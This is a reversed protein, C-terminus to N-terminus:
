FFMGRIIATTFAIFVLLSTLYIYTLNSNSGSTKALKKNSGYAPHDFTNKQGTLEAFAKNVIDPTISSKGNKETIFLVRECLTNIAGPVGQAYKAIHNIVSESFFNQKKCGAMELQRYIFLASEIKNLKRLRIYTIRGSWSTINEPNNNKANDDTAAFLAELKSTGALILNIKKEIRTLNVIQKITGADSKDADDVILTLNRNLKRVHEIIANLRHPRELGTLNLKLRDCVFILFDDFDLRTNCLICNSSITPDKAFCNLLVTKGTGSEGILLTISKNLRTRDLLNDYIKEFYPHAKFFDVGVGQFPRRRFNFYATSFTASDSKSLYRTQEAQAGPENGTKPSESAKAPLRTAAALRTTKPDTAEGQAVAKAALRTEALRETKVNVQAALQNQLRTDQLRETKLDPDDEQVAPQGQLLTEDLQAQTVRAVTQRTVAHLATEDDTTGAQVISSENQVSTANNTEVESDQDLCFVVKGIKVKDSGSLLKKEYEKLRYGNVYTGNLSGIDQICVTPPDIEVLCHYRSVGRHGENSPMRIQCDTARGIFCTTKEKFVYASKELDGSIIRIAVM